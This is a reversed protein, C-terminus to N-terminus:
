SINKTLHVYASWSCLSYYILLLNFLFNKQKTKTFKLSFNHKATINSISIDSRLVLSLAIKMLTNNYSASIPAPTELFSFKHERSTKM